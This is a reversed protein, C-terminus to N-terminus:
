RWAWLVGVPDESAGLIIKWEYGGARLANTAVHYPSSAPCNRSHWEMVIARPGWQRFRPDTLIDWEGGEIDIKVLDLDGSEEFLDAVPVRITGTEGPEAIRSESLLGAAFTITGARNSCGLRRVDWVRELGNARVTQELLAANGPDPEYGIMRASPWRGFIYLGFLGINAGLDMIKPAALGDLRAAIEAPPEYSTLGGTGGFIENLIDVDRSRHRLTVSLGSRRLRYTQVRQPRSQALVFRTTPTVVRAGRLTQIVWRGPASKVASRLTPWRDIVRRALDAHSATAVM